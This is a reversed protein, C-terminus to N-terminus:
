IRRARGARSLRLIGLLIVAGVFAVFITGALGEFPTHWHFTRFLVGGVFAGVVGIVIDGILGAGGGVVISALFGAVAGIAVWLLFTELTM